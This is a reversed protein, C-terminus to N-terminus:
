FCLHSPTKILDKFALNINIIFAAYLITPFETSYNQVNREHKDKSPCTNDNERSYVTAWLPQTGKGLDCREHSPLM